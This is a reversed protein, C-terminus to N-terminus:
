LYMINGCKVFLSPLSREVLRILAGFILFNRISGVSVRQSPTPPIPVNNGDSDAIKLGCFRARKYWTDDFELHHLLLTIMKDSLLPLARFHNKILRM